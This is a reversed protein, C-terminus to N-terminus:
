SKGGSYNGYDKTWKKNGSDDLKIMHGKIVGCSPTCGESQNSYKHGVLVLGDSALELDNMQSDKDLQGSKWVESGSSSLKVAASKAGVVAYVNDSSDVRIAKASGM